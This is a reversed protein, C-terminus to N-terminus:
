CQASRTPLSTFRLRQHLTANILFWFCRITSGLGQGRVESEGERESLRNHAMEVKSV